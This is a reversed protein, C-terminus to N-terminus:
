PRLIGISRQVNNELLSYDSSEVIWDGTLDSNVYGTTKLQTENEDLVFDLANIYGDQNIDGNYIAFNGDGLDSLNNGFAKGALDSFDYNVVTANLAVPSASWTEISNRHRIVLYYSGSYASGPFVFTGNGQIDLTGPVTYQLDYPFVAGHLELTVTDCLGPHGSRDVVAEMTGSGKYFGQIFAKLPISVSCVSVTVPTVASTNSCGNTDTVSVSYSGATSVVISQTVSANSWVYSYAPGSTLTVSDGLCLATPGSATIYAAPLAYATVNLTNSTATCSTADTVLVSYAGTNTVLVNATTEGGSWQYTVPQSTFRVGENSASWSVGNRGPYIIAQTGNSNELGMTHATNNSPMSTTHIEILNTTEFLVVQANVANGTPYHQINNFKVVLRRDPSSGTTFYEISGGAPPYLDNWAFAILNNPSLTNPLQQGTCCGSTTAGFTIFGNSSIYFNSYTNNFFTFSFGIPLAGSLQDDTLTVVNGSGGIPAYPISQYSYSNLSVSGGQCFSLPGDGTVTVPPGPYAIVTAPASVSTCGGAGTVTVTYFGSNGVTISGTNAGNSWMYATAPSATLNVTRGACFSLPGSATIAANPFPYVELNKYAAASCGSNTVLVSYEGTTAGLINQTTAGTNWQYTNGTTSHLTVSAPANTCVKSIVKFQLVDHVPSGNVNGCFLYAANKIVASSAGYLGNGYSGKLTWSDQVPEYEWYDSLGATGNKGFAIYGKDDLAFGVSSERGNGPYNGKATISNSQPDYEFWENSYAPVCPIGCTQGLGFYIRPGISFSAMKTRGTNVPGPVNGKLAWQDAGPDYEWIDNFTGTGDNGGILYGKGGSTAASAFARAGGPFPNKLQWTNTLPDWAYVANSAAGSYGGIVYAKNGLSFSAAGLLGAPCDNMQMWSDTLPDYEWWDNKYTNDGFGFYGKDGLTVSTGFSRPTGGFSNKPSLRCETSAAVNLTISAQTGISISTAPSNVPGCDPAPQTIAPFTISWSDITGVDVGYRDYVHFKWNGNPNISGNGISAFSTKNTAICSAFTTPWPRFIGTFPPTGATLPDVAADSFQTNVFNNGSGGTERSLGLIDGNPAELMLHLDGDYTHTVNVSITIGTTHISAPLGSVAITSIAPPTCANDPISVVAANSFTQPPTVTANLAFSYDGSVSATYTPATAGSIPIGDKKWQVNYGATNGATMTVNNCSSVTGSPTITPSLTIVSVAITNSTYVTGCSNTVVYYNGSTTAAYYAAGAGSIL